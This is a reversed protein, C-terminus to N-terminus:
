PTLCSADRSLFQSEIMVGMVVVAPHPRHLDLAIKRGVHARSEVHDFLILARIYQDQGVALNIATDLQNSGVLQRFLFGRTEGTLLGGLAPGINCATNGGGKGGRTSFDGGQRCLSGSRTAGGGHSAELLLFQQPGVSRHDTLHALFQIIELTQQFRLQRAQRPRLETGTMRQPCAQHAHEALETDARAEGTLHHLLHGVFEVIAGTPMTRQGQQHHADCGAIVGNRAVGTTYSQEPRGANTLTCRDALEGRAISQLETGLLYADHRHIVTAKAGMLLHLRKAAQDAHRHVDRAIGALETM